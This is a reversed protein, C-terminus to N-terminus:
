MHFPAAGLKFFIGSTVFVLGLMLGIFINNDIQNNLFILQLDSFNTTGTFGYILTCGFLLLGSSFAGLIFYKLGAETSFNSHIKFAALIYFVLSQLELALYLSILDNSKLLTIMGICSLGLLIFYEYNIIKEIFVYNISIIIYFIFNLFLINQLFITLNDEVLLHDFIFFNSDKNNLLLISLLFILILIYSINLTLVLKYNYIYDLIVFFVILISLSFILFLEV